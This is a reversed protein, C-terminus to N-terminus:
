ICGWIENQWTKFNLPTAYICCSSLMCNGHLPLSARQMGSSLSGPLLLLYIHSGLPMYALFTHTEISNSAPCEDGALKMTLKQGSGMFSKSDFECRWPLKVNCGQVTCTGRGAKPNFTRQLGPILTILYFRCCSEGKRLQGSSAMARASPTAGAISVTGEM